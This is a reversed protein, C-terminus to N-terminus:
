FDLPVSALQSFKHVAYFAHGTWRDGGTFDPGHCGFYAKNFTGGSRDQIWANKSDNYAWSFVTDLDRLACVAAYSGDADWLWITSSQSSSKVSDDDATLTAKAGSTTKGTDLLTACPMMAGYCQGATGSVLWDISWRVTLGTPDMTYRTVCSGIASTTDPHHLTSTRKIHVRQGVTPTGTPTVEAGDVVVVIATDAEYGHARTGIFTETGGVPAVSLAREWASGAVGLTVAEAGEARHSALSRVFYDGITEGTLDVAWYLGPAIVRRLTYIDGTLAVDVSTAPSGFQMAARELAITTV